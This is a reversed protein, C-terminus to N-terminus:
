YESPQPTATNNAVWKMHIGMRWFLWMILSNM